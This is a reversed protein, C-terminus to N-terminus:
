QTPAPRHFEVRVDRSARDLLLPFGVLEVHLQHVRRILPAELHDNDAASEGACRSRGRQRLEAVVDCDKRVVVRRAPRVRDRRLTADVGRLVILVVAVAHVAQEVVGHLAAVEPRALRVDVTESRQTHVDDVLADGLAHRECALVTAHQLVAREATHLHGPREVGAALGSLLQEQAGVGGEHPLDAKTRDRQDGARFHEVQHDDVASGGTHDDTIQRGALDVRLRCMRHDEGGPAVAVDVVERRVRLLAVHRRCPTRVLAARRERVRTVRLDMRRADGGASFM